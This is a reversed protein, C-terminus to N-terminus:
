SNLGHFGWLFRIYQAKPVFSGNNEWITKETNNEIKLLQM